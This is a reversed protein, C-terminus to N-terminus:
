HAHAAGNRPGSPGDATPDWGQAAIARLAPTVGVHEQIQMAIRRGLEASPGTNGPHRLALQLQLVLQWVEVPGLKCEVPPVLQDLVQFDSVLESTKMTPM